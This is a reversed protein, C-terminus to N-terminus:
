TTEYLNRSNGDVGAFTLYGLGGKANCVPVVLAKGTSDTSSCIQSSAAFPNQKDLIYSSMRNFRETPGPQIDYRIGLSLTLKQTTRWTNQEYFALYKSAIALVPNNGVSMTWAGVGAAVAAATFGRNQLNPVASNVTAGSSDGVQGTVNNISLIPSQLDSSCM